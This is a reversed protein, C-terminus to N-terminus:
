IEGKIYQILSRIQTDTLPGGKRWSFGPMVTDPIGKELANKLKKEPLKRLLVLPKAIKGRRHCILCDTRFLTAGLQGIGRDTHCKRCPSRFIAEAKTTNGTHYPDRVDARLQLIVLPNLPDNSKVQVTKEVRGKKWSTDVTVKIEGTEGPGITESNVVTAMCGCSSTVKEIILTDAGGNRFIFIHELPEGQNVVGFNFSTENFVILPSSLFDDREEGTLSSQAITLETCTPFFILIFVLTPCLLHKM